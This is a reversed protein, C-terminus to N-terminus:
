TLKSGAVAHHWEVRAHLKYLVRNTGEALCSRLVAHADFGLHAKTFVSGMAQRIRQARVKVSAGRIKTILRHGSNLAHDRFFWDGDAYAAIQRSDLALHHHQALIEFTFREAIGLPLQFCNGGEHLMIASIEEGPACTGPAFGGQSFKHVIVFSPGGSELTNMEAFLLDLAELLMGTDAVRVYCAGTKQVSLVFQPNRHISSFCLIRPRIHSIGIAAAIGSLTRIVEQSRHTLDLLVIDAMPLLQLSPKSLPCALSCQVPAYGASRIAQTTTAQPYAGSNDFLVRARSSNRWEGASDRVIDEAVPSSSVMRSTVTAGKTSM